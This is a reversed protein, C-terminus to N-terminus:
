NAKKLYGLKTLAHRVRTRIAEANIGNRFGAMIKESQIRSWEKDRYLKSLAKRAPATNYRRGAKHWGFRGKRFMDDTNDQHTGKFLHDPNVCRTVDCSHLVCLDDPLTGKFLRYALRSAIRTPEDKASCQAYGAGRTSLQWIWCGNEDVSCLARFQKKTM